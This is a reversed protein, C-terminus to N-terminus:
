HVEGTFCLMIGDDDQHYKGNGNIQKKTPSTTAAAVHQRRGSKNVQRRLVSPTLVPWFHQSLVCFLLKPSKPHCVSLSKEYLHSMNIGEYILASSFTCSSRHHRQLKVLFCWFLYRKQTKSTLKENLAVRRWNLAVM